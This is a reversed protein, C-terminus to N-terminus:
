ALSVNGTRRSENTSTRKLLLYMDQASMPQWDSNNNKNGYQSLARAMGRFSAEEIAASMQDSNAVATRGGMNGIYEPNGNENAFFLHGGQAFGGGAKVDVGMGKMMAIMAADNMNAGVAYEVEISRKTGLKDDFKGLESISNAIATKTDNFAGKIKSMASELKPSAKVVGNTASKFDKMQDTATGTTEELDALEKEADAMADELNSIAEENKQYAKTEKNIAAKEDNVLGLMINANEVAEDKKDIMKQIEEEELNVAETADNVALTYIDIEKRAKEQEDCLTKYVDEGLVLEANYLGYKKQALETAAAIDNTFLNYRAQADALAAYAKEQETQRKKLEKDRKIKELEAEKAIELLEIYKEMGAQVKANSIMADVHALLEDKSTTVAGTLEDFEVRVGDLNMGNLTEIKTKLEAIQEPTKNEIADLDFIELILDRATELNAVEADTLDLSIGKIKATIEEDKALQEPLTVDMFERYSNWFETNQYDEFIKEEYTTNLANIALTVGAGLVLGIAAGLPGGIAFGAAAAATSGFAVNVIDMKATEPTYKAKDASFLISGVTIGLVMGAIAGVIAGGVGGLSFGIIGGAAAGLGACIKLGISRSDLDDWNFLVDKFDIALDTMFGKEVPAIEYASEPVELAEEGKGGKDTTLVNLEDIGLLQQKYEKAAKTADKTDDKTEQWATDIRKARMYTDKGSLAAFFQSVTDAVENIADLLWNIVPRLSTLVEGALSGLQRKTQTVSTNIDDMTEAIGSFGNEAEASWLYAEKLGETFSTTIANFAARIGRYTAYKIFRSHSKHLRKISFDLRNTATTQSELEHRAREMIVASDSFDKKLAKAADDAEKEAGALKVAKPTLLDIGDALVKVEQSADAITFTWAKWTETAQTMTATNAEAERDFEKFLGESGKGTINKPSAEQSWLDPTAVSDVKTMDNYLEELYKRASKTSRAITDLAGAIPLLDIKSFKTLEKRYVRLVQVGQAESKIRSLAKSIKDLSNATQKASVTLEIDLSDVKYRGM